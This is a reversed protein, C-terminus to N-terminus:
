GALLKAFAQTLVINVIRIDTQGDASDPMELHLSISAIAGFYIM